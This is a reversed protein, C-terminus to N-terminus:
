RSATQPSRIAAQPMVLRGDLKVRERETLKEKPRSEAAPRNQCLFTSCRAASEAAAFFPPLVTDKRRTEAEM